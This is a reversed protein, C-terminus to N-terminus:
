PLSLYGISFPFCAQRLSGESFVHLCLGLLIVQEGWSLCPVLFPVSLQARCPCRGPM